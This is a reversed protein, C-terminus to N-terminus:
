DEINCQLIQFYHKDLSHLNKVYTLQFCLFIWPICPKIEEELFLLRLATQNMLNKVAAKIM